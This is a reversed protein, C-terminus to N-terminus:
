RDGPRRLTPATGAPAAAPRATLRRVEGQVAEFGAGAEGYNGGRLGALIRQMRAMRQVGEPLPKAGGPAQVRAVYRALAAPDLGAEALAELALADARGENERATKLFGMPVWARGGCNQAGATKGRLATHAMAHALMGAFEGGDRAALFLAAPVFVYGGPLAVPEHLWPCPDEAIVRFVFPHEAGRIYPALGAGLREVYEQASRSALPTTRGRVQEALNAGLAAEKEIRASDDAPRTPGQAALGVAAAIWVTVTTRM